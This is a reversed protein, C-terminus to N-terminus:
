RSPIRGDHAAPIPGGAARHRTPDLVAESFEKMRALERKIKRLRQALRTRQSRVEDLSRELLQLRHRWKDREQVSLLVAKVDV